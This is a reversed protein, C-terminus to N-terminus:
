ARVPRPARRRTRAAPGARAAGRGDFPYTCPLPAIKPAVAGRAVLRVRAPWAPSSAGAAAGWRRAADLELMLQASKIPHVMRQGNATPLWPPWRDMARSNYALLVRFPDDLVSIGNIGGVETTVPGFRTAFTFARAGRFFNFRGSRFGAVTLQALDSSFVMFNEDARRRMTWDTGNDKAPDPCWYKGWFFLSRPSESLVSVLARSCLMGDMDLRAIYAPRLNTLTWELMELVQETNNFWSAKVRTVMLGVYEGDSGDPGLTVNNRLLLRREVFFRYQVEAPNAKPNLDGLWSRRLAQRFGDDRWRSLIALAVLPRPPDVPEAALGLAFAATWFFRM